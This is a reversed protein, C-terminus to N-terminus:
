GFLAIGGTVRLVTGTVYSSADSALFLAAAGAEDAKGFRGLPTEKLWWEQYGEAIRGISPGANEFTGLMIANVRIGHPALEVAACRALQSVAAKAVSYSTLRPPTMVSATSSTYVISGGHGGSIMAKSAAKTLYFASHLNMRLVSDWDGDDVDYIDALPGVGGSHSFLIDVKGFADCCERVIRPASAPDTLDAQLRIAAGGADIIEKVLVDTVAASRAVLCLKAGAEALALAFSQGNTPGIGTIIAVKGDLRFKEMFSM